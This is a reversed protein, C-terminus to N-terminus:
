EEIYTLEFPSSDNPSHKNLVVGAAADEREKPGSAPAESVVYVAADNGIALLFRMATYQVSTIVVPTTEAM